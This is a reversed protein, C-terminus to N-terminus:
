PPGDWWNFGRAAARKGLIEERHRWYRTHSNVRGREREREVHTIKRRIAVSAYGASCGLREALVRSPLWGETTIIQVIQEAISPERGNRRSKATGFPIM